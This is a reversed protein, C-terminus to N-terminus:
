SQKELVRIVDLVDNENPWCPPKNDSMLMANDVRGRNKYWTLWLTNAGATNQDTIDILATNQNDVHRMVKNEPVLARLKNMTACNWNETSFAGHEFACKPDAGQWTKGRQKCLTCTM